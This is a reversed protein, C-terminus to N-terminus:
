ILPFSVFGEEVFFACGIAMAAYTVLRVGACATTETKPLGDEKFIITISPGTFCGRLGVNKASILAAVALAANALVRALGGGPTTPV